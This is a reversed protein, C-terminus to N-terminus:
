STWGFAAQIVQHVEDLFMDSALEVRRWIPPTAGKLDIRLRYTAVSHRRPRRRGPRREGRLAVLASKPGVSTLQGVLGMLEAVDLGALLEEVKRQQEAPGDADGHRPPEVPM